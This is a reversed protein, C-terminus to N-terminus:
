KRKIMKCIFTWLLCCIVVILTNKFSFTKTAISYVPVGLIGMLVGILMCGITEM